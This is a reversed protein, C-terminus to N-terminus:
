PRGYKMRFIFGIQSWSLVEEVSRVITEMIIGLHLIFWSFTGRLVGNFSLPNQATRRSPVQVRTGPWDPPTM